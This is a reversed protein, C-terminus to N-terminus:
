NSKHHLSIAEHYNKILEAFINNWTFTCAFELANKSMKLRLEPNIAIKNILRVFEPVDRPTVLFGNFTNMVLSNNGQANAVVAPVGSAMAELTVNGFTETISPFMFIDSSAYMRALDNGSQYGMFITDSMTNRLTDGAPGDGVILTKIKPNIKMLDIFTSRLTEMEKEWVLRSVFSVLIDDDAVGVSRRFDIDRKSPNFREFDIGRAWIKLKSKIGQRSLEEIMSHSPVYTHLCNNYFWRLYGWILPEAWKLKYYELYSTFHTHYSSVVPIGYEKAFLLSRWGTLDPTAIHILDPKFRIIEKQVDETLGLTIRYEERGPLSFSNVTVMKGAHDIPPNEITPAVVLIDMGVSELYSVLRNLTLSVGDPVHNYNGTIIIIRLKKM